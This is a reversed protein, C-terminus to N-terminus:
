HTWSRTVESWARIISVCFDSRIFIVQGAITDSADVAMRKICDSFGDDICCDPLTLLDHAVEDKVVTSM